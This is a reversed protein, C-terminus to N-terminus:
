RAPPANVVRGIIDKEAVPGFARSDDSVRRNDGLVVVYGKPVTLRIALPGGGPPDDTEDFYDRVRRFARADWGSITDGPLMAVRKILTDNGHRLLIVDGRSLDAASPRVRRALVVQGDHYTPLMSDGRVVAMRFNTTFLLAVALFLAVACVQRRTDRSLRNVPSVPKPDPPSTESAAPLV